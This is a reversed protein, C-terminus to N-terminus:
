PRAGESLPPPEGAPPFRLTVTAGRAGANGAEAEGGWGRLTRRVLALGIGLRGARTSSFPKFLRALAEKSFGPGTDSVTAVVDGSPDKLLRVSLSGGRPMAEYANLLVQYLAVRLASPAFAVEPLGTDFRRSVAIRRRRLAGQWDALAQDLAAELRGPKPAPPAEELLQAIITVQDNAKILEGAAMRLLARQGAALRAGSLRRLYAYTNNLPRRLVEVFKAWGPELDPAMSPLDGPTGEELPPPGEEPAASAAAELEALRRSLGAKEAEWAAREAKLGGLEKELEQRGQTWKWGAQQLALIQGHLRDRLTISEKEQTELREQRGRLAKEEEQLRALEAQLGERQARSAKKEERLRGIVATLTQKRRELAAHESQIRDMARASEETQGRLRSIEALLAARTGELDELRKGSDELQIELKRRSEERESFRTRARELELFVEAKEREWTQAEERSRRVEELLDAKASEFDAREAEWAAREEKLRERDRRLGETEADWRAAQEAFRSEESKLREELAEQQKQWADLSSSYGSLSELRRKLAEREAAAAKLEELRRKLDQREEELRRVRERLRREHSLAEMASEGGTSAPRDWPGYLLHTPVHPRVAEPPQDGPVAVDGCLAELRELEALSSAMRDRLADLDM